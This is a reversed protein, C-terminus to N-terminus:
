ARGWIQEFLQSRYPYPALSEGMTLEGSRFRQLLETHAVVLDPGSIEYIALYKGWEDEHGEPALPSRRIRYRRCADFGPTALIEPVHVEDYWTNFEEEQGPKAETQVALIGHEM